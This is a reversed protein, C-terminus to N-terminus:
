CGQGSKGAGGRVMLRGGNEIIVDGQVLILAPNEGTITVTKGSGIRFTSFEWVVGYSGDTTNDCTTNRSSGTDLIVDTNPDFKTKVGSNPRWQCAPLANYDPFSPVQNQSITIGGNDGDGAFLLWGQALGPSRNTDIDATRDEQPWDEVSRDPDVCIVNSTM